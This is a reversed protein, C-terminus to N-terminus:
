SWALAVTPETLMAGIDALVAAGLQGDVIRHDFSLALQAVTRATVQGEHVWPALRMSGLALIAAEPPNLIPTGIDVGLAGVNTVSITAGRLRAPELRDARADQTLAALERALGVLDLRDADPIHPVVLGRPGAVAIGLNVREAVHIEPRGAGGDDVWRSNIMPHRRVAVLLARAVFLLPTVKIGAFEPLTAIRERAAMTASADVSLFETVHPAATVSAVMAQAMTRRVGVVPVRWVGTAAAYDADAPIRGVQGVGGGTNPAASPTVHTPVPAPAPPTGPRPTPTVTPTPRAPTRVAAEVDSRSITGDPGTGVVAALDVGLDRALKRVPPKALVAAAAEGAGGPRPAAPQRRPSRRRQQHARPGYGVLVPTREDGGRDGGNGPASDQPASDRPASDRPASDTPADADADATRITLLPSGVALTTGEEAHRGVLVGAFPSPIEVVAKATEVEVLPQNVTIADGVAVLWRVIDADTLGEGLDPLRFERQTV